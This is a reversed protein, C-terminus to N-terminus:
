MRLCLVRDELADIQLRELLVWKLFVLLLLALLVLFIVILISRQTKLLGGIRYVDYVSSIRGEVFACLFQGPRFDQIQFGGDRFWQPM